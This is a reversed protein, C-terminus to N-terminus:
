IDHFNHNIDSTKEGADMRLLNNNTTGLDVFYFIM